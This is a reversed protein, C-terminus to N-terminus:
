RKSFVVWSLAEVVAGADALPSKKTKSKKAPKPPNDMVKDSETTPETCLNLSLILLACLVYLLSFLSVGDSARERERRKEELQREMAEFASMVPNPQKGKDQVTQVGSGRKGRIRDPWEEEKVGAKLLFGRLTAMAENYEQLSDNYLDHVCIACGSM